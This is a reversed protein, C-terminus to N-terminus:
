RCGVHAPSPPGSHTSPSTAKLGSRNHTQLGHGCRVGEGRWGGSASPPPARRPAHVLGAQGGEGGEPVQRATMAAPHAPGFRELALALSKSHVEKGQPHPAHAHAHAHAHMCTHTHLMHAHTHTLAHTHTHTHARACAHTRPM